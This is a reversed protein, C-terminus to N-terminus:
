PITLEATAPGYANPKEFLLTYTLGSDLYIPTRWTGDDATTTFARITFTSADYESKLFAKIQVDGVPSAGSDVVTYTDAGGTDHDVATDGNGTGAVSVQSDLFLGFTGADQHLSQSEDWVGDVIDQVTLGSLEQSLQAVSGAAAVTEGTDETAFKALAAATIDSVTVDGGATGQSLKAVSGSVATVEGTDDAAFQALAAQLIAGVTVDETLPDFDNLAAVTAELALASIDAQSATRSAADTVVANTVNATTTVNVVTDLASDFDNLAAIDADTLVHADTM